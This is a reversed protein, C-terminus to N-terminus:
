NWHYILLTTNCSLSIRTLTRCCQSIFIRIGRHDFGHYALVMKEVFISTCNVINHGDGGTTKNQSMQALDNIVNKM